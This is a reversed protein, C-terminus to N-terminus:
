NAMITWIKVLVSEAMAEDIEELDRTTIVSREECLGLGCALKMEHMEAKYCDDGILAHYVYDSASLKCKM